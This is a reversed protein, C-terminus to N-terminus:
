LRRRDLAERIDSGLHANLNLCDFWRVQGTKGLKVGQEDAGRGLNIVVGVLEGSAGFLFAHGDNVVRLGHDPAGVLDEQLLDQFLSAQRNWM